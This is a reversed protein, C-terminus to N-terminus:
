PRIQVGDSRDFMKREDRASPLRRDSMSRVLVPGPAL